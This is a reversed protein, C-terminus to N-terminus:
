IITITPREVSIQNVISVPTHNKMLTSAFINRYVISEFQFYFFSSKEMSITLLHAASVVLHKNIRFKKGCLNCVFPREIKGTHDEMHKKLSTKTRFMKDCQSCKFEYNNHTKIHAALIQKLKFRFFSPPSFVFIM